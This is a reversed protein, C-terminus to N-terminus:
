LPYETALINLRVELQTVDDRGPPVLEITNGDPDNLAEPRSVRSSAIMLTEYGGPHRGIM